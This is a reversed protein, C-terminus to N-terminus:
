TSLLMSGWNWLRNKERINQQLELALWDTIGYGIFLLWESGRFKGRFDKDLEYGLEDPSYEADSDLYYEFYPYIILEGREIYTGFMSSPVGTGRDRLYEPLDGQQANAPTPMLTLAILLVVLCSTLLIETNKM